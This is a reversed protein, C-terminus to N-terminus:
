HSGRSARLYFRAFRAAAAAVAEREGSTLRRLPELAISRPGSKEPLRWRAVLQGDYVVGRTLLAAGTAGGARVKGSVDVVDRSESYAVVLEDFTQIVHAAARTRPPRGTELVLYTREGCRARTLSRGLMDVGRAVDAAPLGSWWQFDRATAPGHSQFYRRTLEAIAEDRTRTSRRPAREDALAYTQQPGRPAGSCVVARLEAHMVLHGVLWPTAAIGADAIAGAIERRTLHGRREIASAITKTSRAILPADLGNRRDQHKMLALVRPGTLEQMWRLDDRAVFHWTPRLVHTRVIAGSAVAADVDASRSLRQAISWLGFPYDQSQVAGLWAVLDAPAGALPASLRQNAARRRAIEASTITV